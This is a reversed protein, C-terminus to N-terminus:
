LKRQLSGVARDEGSWGVGGQPPLHSPSFFLISVCDITLTRAKGSLGSHLALQTWRISRISWILTYCIYIKSVISYEFINIDLVRYSRIDSYM